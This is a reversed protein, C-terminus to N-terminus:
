QLLPHPVSRLYLKREEDGSSPSQTGLPILGGYSSDFTPDRPPQLQELLASLLGGPSVTAELYDLQRPVRPTGCRATAIWRCMACTACRPTDSSASAEALTRGKAMAFPSGSQLDGVPIQLSDSGGLMTGDRNVSVHRVYIGVDPNERLGVLVHAGIIGRQDRV